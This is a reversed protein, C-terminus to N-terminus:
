KNTKAIYKYFQAETV